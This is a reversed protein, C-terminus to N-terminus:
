EGVARLDKKRLWGKSTQGLHNKFVTYVFDNKEELAKITAYSNNWHIVFAKRRTSEDPDNHFYAKDVIKYLGKVDNSAVATEEVNPKVSAANAIARAEREKAEIGKRKVKSAAPAKAIDPSKLVPKKERNGETVVAAKPEEKQKEVTLKSLAPLNVVTDHSSAVISAESKDVHKSTSFYFAAAGISLATFICAFIAATQKRRSPKGKKEAVTQAPMAKPADLPTTALIAKQPPIVVVGTKKKSLEKRIEQKTREVMYQYRAINLDYNYKRIQDVPVFFSKATSEFAGHKDVHQWHHLLHHFGSPQHSNNVGDKILDSAEAEYFWITKQHEPFAKKFVLLNAKVEYNKLLEKPLSIVAELTHKEILTKHLHNQANPLLVAARGGAQLSNEIFSFLHEKTLAEPTDDAITQFLLNSLILTVNQMLNKEIKGNEELEKLITHDAGSLFLNLAAIRYLVPEPELGVLMKHTVVDNNAKWELEQIYKECHVLFSGTGTLPDLVVDTPQPKMMAVMLKSIEEPVAVLREGSIISLKELLYHYILGQTSHDQEDMANVIAVANFLLKPTPTMLLPAKLLRSYEHGSAAYRSIYSIVGEDKVFLKHLADASLDKFSHWRLEKEQKSFISLSSEANQEQELQWADLRKVYYLYTILDVMILPNLKSTPWCAQWYSAIKEQIQTNLM